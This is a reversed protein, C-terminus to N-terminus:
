DNGRSGTRVGSVREYRRWELREVTSGRAGGRGPSETSSRFGVTERARRDDGIETFLLEHVGCPVPNPRLDRPECGDTEPGGHFSPEPPEPLFEHRLSRPPDPVRRRTHTFRRSRQCRNGWGVSPCPGCVVVPPRPDFLLVLYLLESLVVLSKDSPVYLVHSYSMVVLVLFSPTTHVIVM